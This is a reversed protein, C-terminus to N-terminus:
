GTSEQQYHLRAEPILHEEMGKFNGIQHRSGIRGLVLEVRYRNRQAEVLESEDASSGLCGRSCPLSPSTKVYM